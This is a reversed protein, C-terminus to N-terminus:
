AEMLETYDKKEGKKVAASELLFDFLKKQALENKLYSRFQPGGFMKELEEPSMKFEEARKELEAATEEDSAEIKENEVIRGYILRTKISKAADDKWNDMIASKSQGADELAKILTDEPAGSQRVYDQWTHELDASLMSQPVAIEAGELLKDTIANITLARIKDAARKKLDSKIKARLDDLTKLDDSVDQALEDDLAPLDREKVAEIRVELKVSRGAVAPPADDTFTKEIVKTEGTKMGTIDDEVQYPHPDRGVTFAFGRRRTEELANGDEGLEVYEMTVIADKSVTGDKKDIVVANQERIRELEEDEHKKLIKVQTEEVEIGKYEPMKIEPFVDYTVSFEYKEGPTMEPLNELVPQSIPSEEADKLVEQLAKDVLDAAAEQRIGEGFKRVIVDRPVKGKRFGPIQIQKGYKALLSNYAEKSSDPTVSVTLKVASNDLKEFSKNDIM